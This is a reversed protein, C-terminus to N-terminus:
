INDIAFILALKGLIFTKLIDSLEPEPGSTLEGV